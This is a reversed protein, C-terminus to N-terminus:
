ARQKRYSAVEDVKEVKTVERDYRECRPIEDCATNQYDRIMEQPKEVELLYSLCGSSTISPPSMGHFRNMM